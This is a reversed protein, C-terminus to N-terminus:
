PLKPARPSQIETYMKLVQLSNALVAGTSTLGLLAQVRARGTHM